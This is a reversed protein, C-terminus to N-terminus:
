DALLSMVRLMWYYVWNINLWGMDEHWLAIKVTTQQWGDGFAPVWNDSYSTQTLSSLKWVLWVTM